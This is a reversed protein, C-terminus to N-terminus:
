RKFLFQILFKIGHFIAFIIIAIPALYIFTGIGERLYNMLM